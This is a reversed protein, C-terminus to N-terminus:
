SQAQNAIPPPLGTDRQDQGTCLAYSSASARCCVADCDSASRARTTTAQASSPQTAGSVPTAPRVPTDRSVMRLHRTRNVSPRIPASASAGSGTRRANALRRAARCFMGNQAGRVLRVSQVTGTCLQPERPHTSLATSRPYNCQAQATM